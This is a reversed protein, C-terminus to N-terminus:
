STLSPISETMVKRLKVGYRNLLNSSVKPATRRSPYKVRVGARCRTRRNRRWRKYETGFKYPVVVGNSSVSGCSIELPRGCHLIERLLPFGHLDLLVAVSRFYM